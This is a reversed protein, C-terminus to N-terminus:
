WTPRNRDRPEAQEKQEMPLRREADLRFGELLWGAQEASLTLEEGERTPGETQGPQPGMPQDEDEDEDDGPAGPPMDRAPIRGKLQKIKEGLDRKQDGMANALQQLENLTDVLKAIWRDVVEANHRADAQSPDLEVASRFDGAARQWRNLTAGHTELARRVVALAAKLERRRGRGRRYAEVMKELDNGALAEAAARIAQDTQQSAAQGAALAARGPPAKKLEELGQGFRVHGLNYLAVPQLSDQQSGLASELLPEAERLKGERLKRTGANYFERPTTPPAPEPSVPAAGEAVAVLGASL